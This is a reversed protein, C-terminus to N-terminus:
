PAQHPLLQSLPLPSLPAFDRSVLFEPRRSTRRQPVNDISSYTLLCIDRDFPSINMGSGHVTNGGFLLVSGAPGKPADMGLRSVLRSLQPHPLAHSLRASVNDTWNSRGKSPSSKWAEDMLGQRHSGPVFTLPGNFENVPDLFIAASLIRPEPLLDEFHWFAFDQHWEWNEGVFAAKTNIKFQYLYVESGLLQRATEILPALRVLKAMFQSILHCGHLARVSKGSQEKVRSPHDREKLGRVEAKIATVTQHSLWCPLLLYGKRDFLRVQGESLAANM